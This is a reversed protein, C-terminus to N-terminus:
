IFYQNYPDFYSNNYAQAAEVAPTMGGSIAGYVEGQSPDRGLRQRMQSYVDNTQTIFAKLSDQSNTKDGSGGYLSWDSDQFTYPNVMAGSELFPNFQNPNAKAANMYYQYDFPSSTTQLTDQIQSQFKNIPDVDTPVTPGAPTIPTPTPAPTEQKQPKLMSGWIMAMDMGGFNGNLGVNSRGTYRNIPMNVGNALQQVSSTNIPLQTNPDSPLAGGQQYVNQFDGMTKLVNSYRGYDNKPQLSQSLLNFLAM